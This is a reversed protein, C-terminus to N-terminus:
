NWSDSSELCFDKCLSTWYWEFLGWAMDDPEYTPYRCYDSKIVGRRKLIVKEWKVIMDISQFIFNLFVVLKGHYDLAEDMRGSRYSDYCITYVDTLSAGPMVGVAGRKFADIMQLGAYGVLVGVKSHAARLVSSIMPGPPKCEIKLYRLTDTCAMLDALTQADMHAGTEVPSYQVIVPVGVAEAVKKVHRIFADPGTPIMFPPLIMLGDLGQDQMELAREIALETSQETVSAIVPIRGAVQDNVVSLMRLKESDSLKHFETAFGFLTLGSAGAEIQFEVLSRLGDYDVHGREDFPAAVVPLIGELTDMNM